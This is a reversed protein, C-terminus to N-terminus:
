RRLLNYGATIQFAVGDFARFPVAVKPVISLRNSIVFGVGATFTGHLGDGNEAFLAATRGAGKYRIDLGITPLVWLRPTNVAVL